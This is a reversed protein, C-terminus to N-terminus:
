RFNLPDPQNKRTRFAVFHDKRTIQFYINERMVRSFLEGPPKGFSHGPYVRADPSVSRKITQISEYMKEPCGGDLDCVGCGEIFVTDGSFLADPLSYCIGGYTHGPTLLCTIRTGALDLVERDRVAVLNRSHFRYYNAEELSIYVNINFRSVLQEVLNVHDYHSHTLLIAKLDVDLERLRSTIAALNWAPDVIAAHRTNEDIILYVYNIFRWSELRM